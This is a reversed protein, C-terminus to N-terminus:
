KSLQAKKARLWERLDWFARDALEIARNMLAPRDVKRYIKFEELTGVMTMGLGRIKKRVINPDQLVHPTDPENNYILNYILLGDTKLKSVLETLLAEPDAVHEIVDFATIFDYKGAPLKENMLPYLTRGTIGRRELRQKVFGLNKPSVDAFDCQIGNRNLYIGLTGVGSGYDCGHLKGHQKLLATLHALLEQRAPATDIEIGILEYCYLSTEVYFRTVAEKDKPDIKKARWEENIAATAARCQALLEDDSATSGTYQRLEALLNAALNGPAYNLASDYAPSFAPQQM